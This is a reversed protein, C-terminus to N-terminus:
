MCSFTGKHTKSDKSLRSEVTSYKYRHDSVASDVTIKRPRKPTSYKELNIIM